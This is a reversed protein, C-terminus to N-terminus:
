DLPGKPSEDFVDEIRSATVARVVWTHLTDVDTTMNIRGRAPEPVHIKRAALAVLPSAAQGEAYGEAHWQDALAM